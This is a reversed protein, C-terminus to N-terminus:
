LFLQLTLSPLVAALLVVAMPTLRTPDPKRRRRTPPTLRPNRKAGTLAAISARSVSGPCALRVGRPKRDTHGAVPAHRSPTCGLVTRRDYRCHISLLSIDRSSQPRLGVTSM